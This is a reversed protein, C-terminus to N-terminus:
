LKLSRLYAEVEAKEGRFVFAQPYRKLQFAYMPDYYEKLLITIWNLHWSLDANDKQQLWAQDFAQRVQTYRVGGLRKAIREFRQQMFGVWAALDPYEAQAEIVYENLINQLRQEFPVELLIRDGSKIANFLAPSLHVSGINRGEDEFLAYRCSGAALRIWRYALQNEFDIQTPQSWAHGGFTSGRHQALGELDIACEFNQIVQTKGSGTRGALVIPQTAQTVLSVAMQDLENILYQRFAKYGGQLRVLEVGAQQIWSQAIRSRLGGRFCYLMADPQQHKFQCWADVRPQRVEPNLLRHGLEIAADQGQQKYALGVLRREEDQMLPLNVANPICGKSFEVPARVDILPRNALVIAKFDDTSALSRSM